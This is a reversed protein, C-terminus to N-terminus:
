SLLASRRTFVQRIRTVDKWQIAGILLAFGSYIGAGIVINILVPLAILQGLVYLTLAMGTAAVVIRIPVSWRLTLKGTLCVMAMAAVAIALESLVTVGAAASAGYRPILVLYGVLAVAANGAYFPLMRRQIHLAVVAHSWVTGFFIMAVGFLLVALYDGSSQFDSGAILTMIDRSLVLGGAVIPVILMLLFDLSRQILHSMRDRNHQQWANVMQPLVIGMFLFPLVTLVDIVRYAAGYLGLEQRSRFVSLIVADARLYILNFAISLGIPWAAILMDKWVLWEARLRIPVLKEARVWAVILQVVNAAITATLMGFLGRELWVAIGVGLVLTARGALEAEAAARMALRKQFLTVIIQHLAIALFSITTYLIGVHVAREYPFLLAAIPALGLFVIAITLRLGLANGLIRQENAAPRSLQELCVITLGFDVLVGFVQLFATITTYGGFGEPGLARTVMGIAVVGLITGVGRAAFQVATNKAASAAFSMPGIM